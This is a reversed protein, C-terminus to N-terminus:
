RSGALLTVSGKLYEISGDVLEVKATWLYVGSNGVKGNVYGDWSQMVESFSNSASEFVVNGWRDFVEFNQVSLISCGSFFGFQSNVGEGHPLFINPIYAMNETDLKINVVASDKCFYENEVVLRYQTQITPQLQPTACDNCSLGEQPLWAYTVNNDGTISSQLFTPRCFDTLFDNPLSVDPTPLLLVEVSVTDSCAGNSTLVEYKGKQDASIMPIDISASIEVRNNPANWMYELNDGTGHATLQLRDRECYISDGIITTNITPKVIVEITDYQNCYGYEAKIYYSGGDSENASDIIPDPDESGFSNPGTWRIYSANQSTSNLTIEEGECIPSSTSITLDLVNNPPEVVVFFERLKLGCNENMSKIHFFEYEGPILSDLLFSNDSDAILEFTTEEWGMRNRIKIEYEQGTIFQPSYISIQGDNAQLCDTPKSVEYTVDELDLPVVSFISADFKENTSFDDSPMVGGFKEPLDYLFGQNYVFGSIADISQITIEIELTSKAQLDLGTIELVGTGLGNIAGVNDMLIGSVEEIIIGVPLTDRLTIDDISNYSNNEITLFVTKRDGSCKMGEIPVRCSFTFSFPCSCGDSTEAKPNMLIQNADGTFANMSFLKNQIPNYGDDSSGFGYLGSRSDFLLGGIHSVDEPNISVTPTVMGVNPDNTNLNIKLLYSRSGSPQLDEHDHTGQYANATTPNNPDIAFDFIKTQFTGSNSSEPDWYLDIQQLLEFDDFVSFILISSLSEEYCLYLGDVTCDGASVQLTDVMDVVGVTDYTGDSKLRIIANSDDQVGYIYNDLSNFGLGDFSGNIYRVFPSLFPPNFPIYIPRQITTTIGDNTAILLQGDCAFRQACLSTCVSLYVLLALIISLRKM